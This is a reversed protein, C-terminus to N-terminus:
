RKNVVVDSHGLMKFAREPELYFEAVEDRRMSKVCENFGQLVVNRDTRFLLPREHEYTSDVPRKFGPQEMEYDVMVLYDDKIELDDGKQL